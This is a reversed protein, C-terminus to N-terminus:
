EHVGSVGGGHGHRRRRRKKKPAAAAEGEAPAPETIEHIHGGKGREFLRSKKIPTGHEGFILRVAHDLEV